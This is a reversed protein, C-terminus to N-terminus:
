EFYLYACRSRLPDSLRRQHNSSLVTMPRSRAEITGLHPITVRWEELLQFTMAEFAPNTKDVEDILLVCPKESLIARLFPGASYFGLTYIQERLRPWEAIGAQASAIRLYQDQLPRDFHGLAQGVGIGEYCQLREM